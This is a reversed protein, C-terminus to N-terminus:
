CGLFARMRGMEAELERRFVAERPARGEVYGFRASLRGGEVALNGWGIVRDRWLLPLAYYGRVRKAAPTYAEFRYAWGWLREFRARISTLSHTLSDRWSERTDRSWSQTVVGSLLAGALVAIRSGHRPKIVTAHSGHTLFDFENWGADNAWGRLVTRVAEDDASDASSQDDSSM